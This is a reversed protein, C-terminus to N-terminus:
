WANLAGLVLWDVKQLFARVPRHELQGLEKSVDELLLHFGGEM